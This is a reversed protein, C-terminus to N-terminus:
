CILVSTEELQLIAGGEALDQKRPDYVQGFCATNKSTEPLQARWKTELDM